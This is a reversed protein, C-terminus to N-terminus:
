GRRVKRLIGKLPPRAEYEAETMLHGLHVGGPRGEILVVPSGDGLVWAKSRTRSQEHHSDYLVPWFRVPTGIPNAENWALARAEGRAFRKIGWKHAATREERKSGAM